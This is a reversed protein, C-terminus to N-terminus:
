IKGIFRYIIKVEQKRNKGRGSQQGLEIREILERVMVPTLETPELYKRVTSVFDKIEKKKKNISKTQEELLKLEQSIEKQEREFQASLQQFQNDSVRGSLNDEYLKPFIRELETLRQKKTLIQSEEIASNRQNELEFKQRLQEVLEPEHEKIMTGLRRLDSLVVQELMKERIGHSGTTCYKLRSRYGSCYYWEARGDFYHKRGCDACFVIGSFLGIKDSKTKRMRNNERLKQVLAFTEEDIIAEHTNRFIKQKEKPNEFSRKSKYNKKYTKFNITHGCYAYNKLVYGVVDWSWKYAYTGVNATGIGKSRKYRAPILVKDEELGEVILRLSKGAACEKFIRRVNKAAEEDVLWKHKDKPDKIYGYPPTATM